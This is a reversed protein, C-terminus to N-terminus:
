HSANANEKRFLTGIIDATFESGNATGIFKGAVSQSIRNVGVLNTLKTSIASVSRKLVSAINVMSMDKCVMEILLEEDEKTWKKNSNDEKGYSEALFRWAIAIMEVDNAFQIIVPLYNRYALLENVNGKHNKTLTKVAFDFSDYDPPNEFAHIAINAMLLDKKDPNINDIAESIREYTTKM